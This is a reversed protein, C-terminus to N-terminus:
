ENSALRNLDRLLDELNIGHLTAGAELNEFEAALCVYCGLGYREFVPISEPRRSVIEQITMDKTIEM